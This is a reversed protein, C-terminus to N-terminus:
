YPLGSSTMPTPAALCVRQKTPRVPVGPINESRSTTTSCSKGVSCPLQHRKVSSYSIPNTPKSSALRSTTVHQPSAPVLTNNPAHKAPLRPPPASLERGAARGSSELVSAYVRGSPM